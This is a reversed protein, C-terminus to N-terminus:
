HPGSSAEERTAAIEESNDESRNIAKTLTVSRNVSALSLGPIEEEDLQIEEVPQVREDAEELSGGEVEELDVEARPNPTDEHERSEPSPDQEVSTEQAQRTAQLVPSDPLPVVSADLPASVPLSPRDKLDVERVGETVDKVEETEKGPRSPSDDRLSTSDSPVMSEERKKKLSRLSDLGDPETSSHRRKHGIQPSTSTADESWPRDPRPFFSNSIRRIFKYM